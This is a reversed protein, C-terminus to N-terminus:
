FQSLLWGGDVHGRSALLGGAVVIPEALLALEDQIETLAEYILALGSASLPSGLPATPVLCGRALAEVHAIDEASLVVEVVGDACPFEYM